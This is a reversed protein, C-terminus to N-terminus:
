GHELPLTTLVPADAATVPDFALELMRDAVFAPSSFADRAKFDLFKQVRPFQQPSCSRILAQMETDIIGPAVAHVRVGGDAQELAIVESMREVAAKGACYASWGAYANRAAGSSINLLVGDGGRAHVHRIFARSGNFVGTVNVQLHLAVQAPDNEHLPGIPVLLGANNIWLDVRGFRAVAEACLQAMAEADTVDAAQTLLSAADGALQPRHRACAAVRLGRQLFRTALGAGLGRSAGTIVATKDTLDMTM